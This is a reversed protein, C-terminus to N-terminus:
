KGEVLAFLKEVSAKDFLDIAVRRDKVIVHLVRPVKSNTNYSVAVIPGVTVTRASGGSEVVLANRSNVALAAGSKRKPWRIGALLQALATAKGRTVGEINVCYGNRISKHQARKVEAGTIGRLTDLMATPALGNASTPRARMKKTGVMEAAVNARPKVKSKPEPAAQARASASVSLQIQM